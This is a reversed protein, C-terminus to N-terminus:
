KGGAQAPKQNQQNKPQNKLQLQKLQEQRRKMAAAREEQLRKLYNQQRIKTNKKVLAEYESSSIRPPKKGLFDLCAEQHKRFKEVAKAFEPESYRRLAFYMADASQRFGELKEGYQKYWEPKIRTVEILEFHNQLSSYASLLSSCESQSFYNDKTTEKISSAIEKELLKKRIKEELISKVRAETLDPKRPDFRTLGANSRKTEKQSSRKKDEKKSQTNEKQQQVSVNQTGRRTRNRYSARYSQASLSCFLGFILCFSFIKNSM